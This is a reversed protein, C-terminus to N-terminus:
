PRQIMGATRSSARRRLARTAYREGDFRRFAARLLGAGVPNHRAVVRRVYVSETPAPKSAIAAQCGGGVIGAVVM